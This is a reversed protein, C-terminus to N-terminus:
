VVSEIYWPMAEAIGILIHSHPQCGLNVTFKIIDAGPHRVYGVRFVRTVVLRADNKGSLAFENKM